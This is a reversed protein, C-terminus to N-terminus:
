LVPHRDRFSHAAQYLDALRLVTPEDWHKGVIQLGVPLGKTDFGCPVTMAPLGYYNAFLTNEASLAQANRGVERITPTNAVTTPLVLVDVDKFHSESIANRDAEIRRVDFGPNDFPAKVQRMVCGFGQIAKVAVDFALTVDRSAKFNTVVGVRLTQNRQLAALYEPAKGGRPEALVDLVLATDEVCRTTIAAHALWLIADDFTEGELIGRNNILGYTGKFGVVGCCSAPLRCSGVADTDLTAYCMGASVAAASGGSSGGTIYDTDWPNHVPGFCSIASTTGMALEHMNMKGILIAGAKKLKTVAVADKSPVRDRLPEFAATTRIGATDYMDKIGVPIGHMPGRWTGSRIEVEALKAQEMATEKLVTIFANLKNDLKEIRMLCESVLEVPSIRKEKIHDSAEKMSMYSHASKLDTKAM